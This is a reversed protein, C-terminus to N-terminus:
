EKFWEGIFNKSIKLAEEAKYLYENIKEDYEECPLWIDEGTIGPYRSLSVHPEFEESIEVLVMLESDINRKKVEKKLITSVYHTKEFIGFCILIAKISKEVSQQLHYMSKEFLKNDYLLKASEVDRESDNIWAVAWSKNTINSLAAINKKFNFIWATDERIIENKKLYAKTEEILPAVFNKDYITIGDLAIDLFLPNHNKFNNKCEEKSLLIVDVPFDLQRKFKVIDDTREIRSKETSDIVILLDIDNWEKKKVYSGFLVVGVVNNWTKLAKEKITFRMLDPASPLKIENKM